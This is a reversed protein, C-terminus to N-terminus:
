VTCTGLSGGKKKVRGQAQKETCIERGGKNSYSILQTFLALLCYEADTANIYFQLQTSSKYCHSRDSASM